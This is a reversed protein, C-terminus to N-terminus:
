AIAIEFYVLDSDERVRRMGAKEMVRQSPLNDRATDARALRVEGAAAAAALLARLAETAIGRGQCEPVVGYGLEVVGGQDPRDL